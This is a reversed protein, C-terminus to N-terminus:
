CTGQLIHHIHMGNRLAVDLRQAKKAKRYGELAVAMGTPSRLDMIAKQEKAWTRVGESLAEDEAAKSLAQYIRKLDALSFTKDLFDRIEGTILSPGDPTAKTSTPGSSSPTPPAFSSVISSIQSLTPNDLQTIQLLIDPIISPHVYHTAIGLESDLATM